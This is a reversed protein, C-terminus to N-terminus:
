QVIEPNEPPTIEPILSQNYVTITKGDAENDKFVSYATKVVVEVNGSYGTLAYSPTDTWAVFTETGDANKVYINYGVTGLVKSNTTILSKVYAELQKEQEYANKNIGKLYEPGIFKIASESMQAIVPAKAEENAKLIAKLVELNAFNFANVAYGKKLATTMLYEM